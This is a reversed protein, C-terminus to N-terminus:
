KGFTINAAPTASPAMLTKQDASAVEVPMKKVRKRAEIILLNAFALTFWRLPHIMLNFTTLTSVAEILVVWMMSVLLVHWWDDDAFQRALLRLQNITAGVLLLIAIFGMVGLEALLTAWGNNVSAGGTQEEEVYQWDSYRIQNLGVGLVPHKVWVDLARLSNDLRNQYSTVEPTGYPDLMNYYLGWLRVQIFDWYGIQLVQLIPIALGMLFVILIFYNIMKSRPIARFLTMVVLAVVFFGLAGLSGTLLMAVIQTGWIVWNRPRSSFLVKTDQKNLIIVGFLIVSSLLYIGLWGPEKFFGSIQSFGSFTRYSQIGFRAVSTNTLELTTFPLNLPRGVLQYLGYVSQLFSSLFWARLVKKMDEDNLELFVLVFFVLAVIILQLYKTGFDLLRVMKSNWLNISSLTAILIYIFVFKSNPSPRLEVRKTLLGLIVSGVLLGAGLWDVRLLGRNGINLLSFGNFPLAFIYIILLWLLLSSSRSKM